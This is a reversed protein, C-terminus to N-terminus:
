QKEEKLWALEPTEALAILEDLVQKKYLDAQHTTAIRLGEVVWRYYAATHESPNELLAPPFYCEGHMLRPYDPQYYVEMVTYLFRGDRLVTEETIRWGNDSLYKRLMPTKSQCQLIMRYKRDQMWPAASLISIMTDAGMGACVMTDFDRPVSQLGDSLYFEMKETMGYKEANAKAASLPGPVIDSAIVSSAIGQQLLWIGLYGHDTGVDVVREGPAVFGCCARLRPSLPVNM